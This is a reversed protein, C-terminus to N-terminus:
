YGSGKKLKQAFGFLAVSDVDFLQFLVIRNDNHNDHVLAIAAEVCRDRTGIGVHFVRFCDAGLSNQVPARLIVLGKNSRKRCGYV